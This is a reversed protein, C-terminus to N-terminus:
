RIIKEMELSNKRITYHLQKYFQVAKSKKHTKFTIKKINNKKAHKELTEILKTGTGKRKHKIALDEIILVPGEWWQEIKYVLVGIIEKENVAVLVKGTKFYYQLSKIVGALTSKENFPPKSFETLLLKGIEKIDKKTAFKIRM